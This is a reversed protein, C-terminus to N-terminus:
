RENCEKTYKAKDFWLRKKTGRFGSELEFCKLKGFGYKDLFTWDISFRRLDVTSDQEDPSFEVKYADIYGPKFYPSKWDMIIVKKIEVRLVDRKRSCKGTLM